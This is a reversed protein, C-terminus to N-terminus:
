ATIGCSLSISPVSFRTLLQVSTQSLTTFTALLCVARGFPHKLLVLDRYQRLYCINPHLESGYAATAIFCRYDSESEIAPCNYTLEAYCKFGSSSTANVDKDLDSTVNVVAVKFGNAEFLAEMGKASYKPMVDLLRSTLITANVSRRRVSATSEKVVSPQQLFMLQPVLNAVCSSILAATSNLSLKARLHEAAFAASANALGFVLPRKTDFTKSPVPSGTPNNSDGDLWAQGPCDTLSSSEQLVVGDLAIKHFAWGNNGHLEIKVATPFNGNTITHVMTATSGQLTGQAPVTAPESYVGDVELFSVTLKNSTHSDPCMSTVLTLTTTVVKRASWGLDDNLAFFSAQCTKLSNLLV